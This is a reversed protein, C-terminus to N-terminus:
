SRVITRDPRSTTSGREELGAADGGDEQRQDVEHQRGDGDLVAREKGDSKRNRAVIRAQRNANLRSMRVGWSTSFM